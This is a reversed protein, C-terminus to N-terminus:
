FILTYEKVPLVMSSKYIKSVTSQKENLKKISTQKRSNLSSSNESSKIPKNPLNEKLKNRESGSVWSHKLIDEAVFLSFFISM